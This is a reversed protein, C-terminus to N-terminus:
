PNVTGKQDEIWTEFLTAYLIWSIFPIKCWYGDPAELFVSKSKVGFVLLYIWKLAVIWAIQVLFNLVFDFLYILLYLPGTLRMLLLRLREPKSDAGLHFPGLTQQFTLTTGEHPVFLIWGQDVSKDRKPSGWILYFYGVVYGLATNPLSWTSDMILELWGSFTGLDYITYSCVALAYLFGAVLGFICFGNMEFSYGFMMGTLLSTLVPLGWGLILTLIIKLSTPM